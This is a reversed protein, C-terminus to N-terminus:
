DMDVKHEAKKINNIEEKLAKNDAGVAKTLEIIKQYNGSTM